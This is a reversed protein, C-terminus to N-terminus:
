CHEAPASDINILRGQEDFSLAVFTGKMLAPDVRQLARLDDILEHSVTIKQNQCDTFLWDGDLSALMAPRSYFVNLTNLQQTYERTYVTLKERYDPSDNIEDQYGHYEVELAVFKSEGAPPVPSTYITLLVLLCGLAATLALWERGPLRGPRVLLYWWNSGTDHHETVARKIRGPAPYRQKATQYAQKLADNEDHENM